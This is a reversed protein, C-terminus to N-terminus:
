QGALQQMQSIVKDGLATKSTIHKKIELVFSNDEFTGRVQEFDDQMTKRIGDLGYGIQATEAFEKKTDAYLMRDL